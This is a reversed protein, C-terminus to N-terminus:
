SLASSYLEAQLSSAANAAAGAADAFGKAVQGLSANKSDLGKQTLEAKLKMNTESVGAKTREADLRLKEFGLEVNYYSSLGSIFASYAQAKARMKDAGPEHRALDVVKCFFSALMQMMSTKLQTATQVALKILEQKIEADKITQQRNIEAVAESARVEAHTLAAMYAGQPLDFGQASYTADIQAKESRAQRYARDRGEHWAADFAKKNMGFEASGGLIGCAWTEPESSICDFMNPFYKKIWAEAADNLLLVNVDQTEYDSLLDGINPPEKMDPRKPNFKFDIDKQNLDWSSLRSAHNRADSMAKESFSRVFSMTTDITSM